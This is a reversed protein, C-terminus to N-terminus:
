THVGWGVSNDLSVTLSPFSGDSVVFEGEELPGQYILGGHMIPKVTNGHLEANNATIQFIFSHPAFDKFLELKTEWGKAKDYICGEGNAYEELYKLRAEFKELLGFKTAFEIVKDFHEQCHIQLM